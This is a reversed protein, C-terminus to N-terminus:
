SGCLLHHTRTRKLQILFDSEGSPFCSVVPRAKMRKRRAGARGPCSLFGAQCGSTSCRARFHEVPSTHHSPEVQVRLRIRPSELFDANRDDVPKDLQACDLRGIWGDGIRRNNEDPGPVLGVGSHSIDKAPVYVHIAVRLPGFGRQSKQGRWRNCDAISRGQRERRASGVPRRRPPRRHRCRRWPRCGGTYLSGPRAPGIAAVARRM